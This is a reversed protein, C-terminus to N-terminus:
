KSGVAEKDVIRMEGNVWGDQLDTASPPKVMVAQDQVDSWNINNHAWDIIDDADQVRLEHQYATEFDAGHKADAEAYYRARPEAVLDAPVEWVSGDGMTVQIVKM